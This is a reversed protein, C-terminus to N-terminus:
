GPGSASRGPACSRVRRSPPSTPIAVCAGSADFRWGHFPCRVTDGVIVGGHGLHTGLHPCYADLLHAVGDASRFLVLARGFCTLSQVEKTGLDSSRAVVYWGSPFPGMPFRTRM